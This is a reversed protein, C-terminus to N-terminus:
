LEALREARLVDEDRAGRPVRQSDRSVLEVEVAELPEDIRRLVALRLRRRRRQSLRERQPPALGQGIECVLREGLGRDCPELLEPEDRELPPDVGIEREAAVALEDSLQAREDGLM